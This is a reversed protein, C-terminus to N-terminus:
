TTLEPAKVWQAALHASSVITGFNSKIGGIAATHASSSYAASCDSVLSVYYEASLGDRLSSEVCVDTAVGCFLLSRIGLSKLVMDLNTGVFASFRHKVVTIDTPLPRVLHFESGWSDTRCITGTPVLGPEDSVRDLWQTTDNTEDHLTQIFVVPVGIIRAVDILKELRPVMAAVATVDAGLKALSGAPDCFDNQVDVVILATHTPDYRYTTDNM